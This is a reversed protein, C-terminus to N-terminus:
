NMPGPSINRLDKGIRSVSQEDDMIAAYRKREQYHERKAEALITRVEVHMERAHRVKKEWEGILSELRSMKSELLGAKRNYDRELMKLERKHYLMLAEKQRKHEKALEDLSGRYEKGAKAEGKSFAIEERRKITQKLGKKVKM